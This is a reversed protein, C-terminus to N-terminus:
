DDDRRIITPLHPWNYALGHGIKSLSEEADFRAATLEALVRLEKLNQEQRYWAKSQEQSMEVLYAHDEEIALGMQPHKYIDKGNLTGVKYHTPYEKSRSM